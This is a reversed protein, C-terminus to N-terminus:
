AIAGEAQKSVSDRVMEGFFSLFLERYAAAVKSKPEVVNVPAIQANANELSTNDPITISSIPFHPLQKLQQAVDEMIFREVARSKTVRTFVVGLVQLPADNIDRRNSNVMEVLPIFAALDQVALTSPTIPVILCDAAMLAANLIKTKNASTDIFVLDYGTLQTDRRFLKRLQLDGFPLSALVHEAAGLQAGAPVLDYGWETPRILFSPSVPEATFLSYATQTEVEYRGRSLFTTNQQQDLDIVCVRLGQQAAVTALAVTTTTKGVGGKSNAIAIIKAM